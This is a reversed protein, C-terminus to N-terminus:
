QGSLDQWAADDPGPVFALIQVHSNLGFDGPFEDYVNGDSHYALVVAPLFGEGADPMTTTTLRVQANGDADAIVTNETGYPNGCAIDVIRFSPPATITVCWLTYVGNPVLKEFSLDLETKEGYVTYTGSGNGALWEGMTFGLDVGKAFPDMLEPELGFPDHKVAIATGFTPADQYAEAESANIRRVLGNEIEVFVDQEAMGLQVHNFFVLPAQKQPGPQPASVLVPISYACASLVFLGVVLILLRKINM